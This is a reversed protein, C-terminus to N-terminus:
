KITTNKHDSISRRFLRLGLVAFFLFIGSRRSFRWVFVTARASPVPSTSIVSHRGVSWRASPPPSHATAPCTEIAPFFCKREPFSGRTSQSRHGKTIYPGTSHTPDLNKTPHKYAPFSFPRPFNSILPSGMVLFGGCNIGNMVEAGFIFQTNTHSLSLCFLTCACWRRTVAVCDECFDCPHARGCCTLSLLTHAGVRCLPLLSVRALLSSPPLAFSLAPSLPLDAAAAPM